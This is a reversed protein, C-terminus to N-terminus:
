LPCCVCWCGVFWQYITLQKGVYGASLGELDGGGGGGVGGGGGGVGGIGGGVGGIAAVIM